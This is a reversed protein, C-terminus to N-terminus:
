VLTKTEGHPLMSEFAESDDINLAPAQPILDNDVTHVLNNVNESLVM